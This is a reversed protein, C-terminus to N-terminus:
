KLKKNIFIQNWNNIIKGDVKETLVFSKGALHEPRAEIISDGGGNFNLICKDKDRYLLGVADARSYVIRSLKGTLDLYMESVEEGNKNILKDAVHGSLILCKKALPKFDEIVQLFADRLYLYGAGNPLKKIDDEGPTKGWNKGMPTNQYMKIALPNIMDELATATDITIYDYQFNNNVKEEKLSKKIALLEKINSAKVKLGKVFDSGNELDIILNNELLSFATTKGSKPKSFIILFQPNEVLAEIPSKPLEM